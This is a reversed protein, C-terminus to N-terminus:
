EEDFYKECGAAVLVTNAVKFIPLTKPKSFLGWLIACEAIDDFTIGGGDETDWREKFKEKTM